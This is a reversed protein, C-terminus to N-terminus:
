RFEESRLDYRKMWRQIQTRAKGLERAVASVNGGHKRLVQVLETRHREQEDSLTRPRPTKVSSTVSEPLHERQIPGDGALLAATGLANKLERVNLPWDHAFLARVADPALRVRDPHPCTRPILQSVLLGLDETRERLAPLRTRFGAIRAFLDHRFRGEAVARGLDQHTASVVRLQVPYPRTAGVPTVEHEQLVRLLAAQSNLPLDAIEDLFLCGDNASRVLGLRTQSAGSFAGKVSGFLESEVLNEPLAGCNVGVFDGPLKSWRAIQRALVEKGTGSEGEILIAIDKSPAITRLENWTRALEANLTKPSEDDLEAIDLDEPGDLLVRKRFLLVTRGLEILDGDALEQQEILEGNIRTGNRSRSDELFWRDQVRALLAHRSSMRADPISLVLDGAPTDAPRTARRETGRGFLVTSAGVLAHRSSMALPRDGELVVYLVPGFRPVSSSTVPSEDEALTHGLTAVM